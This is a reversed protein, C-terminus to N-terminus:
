KGQLKTLIHRLIEGQEGYQQEENLGALMNDIMDIAKTPIDDFSAMEMIVEQTKNIPPLGALERLRDSGHQETDEKLNTPAGALERLRQNDM